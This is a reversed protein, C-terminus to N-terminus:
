DEGLGGQVGMREKATVKESGGARKLEPYGEHGGGTKTNYKETRNAVGRSDSRKRKARTDM